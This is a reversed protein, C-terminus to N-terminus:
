FRGGIGLVAGGRCLSVRVGAGSAGNPPAPPGASAEYEHLASELPADAIVRYLGIGFLEGTMPGLMGVFTTRFADTEGSLRTLTWVDAALLAGGLVTQVWGVVKLTTQQRRALRRWEREVQRRVLEPSSEFARERDYYEALSGFGSPAVFSSGLWVTYGGVFVAEGADTHGALMVSLAVAEAAIVVGNAAWWLTSLQRERQVHAELTAHLRDLKGEEPDTLELAAGAREDVHDAPSAKSRRLSAALEGAEDRALNGALLVAARSTAAVGDPLDITRLIPPGTGERYSVALTNAQPDISVTISGRAQPALADDPAVATAALERGIAARLATADIASAVPDVEVVLVTQAEGPAEARAAPAAATSGALVVALAIRRLSM